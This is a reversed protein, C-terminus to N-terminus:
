LQNWIMVSLVVDAGPDFGALRKEGFLFLFSGGGSHETQKLLRRCEHKGFIHQHVMREGVLQRSMPEKLFPGPLLMEEKRSYISHIELNKRVVARAESHSSEMYFFRCAVLSGIDVIDFQNDNRSYGVVPTAVADTTSLTIVVPQQGVAPGGLNTDCVIELQTIEIERSFGVIDPNVDDDCFRVANHHM